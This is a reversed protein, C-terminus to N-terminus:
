SVGLELGEYLSGRGAISRSPAPIPQPRAADPVGGTKICPSRSSRGNTKSV